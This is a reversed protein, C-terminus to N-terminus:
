TRLNKGKEVEANKYFMKKQSLLETSSFNDAKREFAKAHM